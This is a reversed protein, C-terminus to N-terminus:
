QNANWLVRATRWGKDRQHVLVVLYKYSKNSATIVLLDWTRGTECTVMQKSTRRARRNLILNRSTLRTARGKIAEPGVAAPENPPMLVVNKGAFLGALATPDKAKYVSAYTECLVILQSESESETTVAQLLFTHVNVSLFAGIV